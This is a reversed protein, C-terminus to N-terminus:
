FTGFVELSLVTMSQRERATADSNEGPSNKLGYLNTQTPGEIQMSFCDSSRLLQSYRTDTVQSRLKHPIAITKQKAADSRLWKKVERVSPPCSGYEWGGLRAYDFALGKTGPATEKTRSSHREDWDELIGLGVGGKLHYLLGAYERPREPADSEKSYYPDRYMKDQVSHESLSALLESVSPPAPTYVYGNANSAMSMSFQNSSRLSALESPMSSEIKQVSPISASNSASSEWRIGPDSAAIKRRKPPRSDDHCSQVMDLQGNEDGPLEEYSNVADPIRSSSTYHDSNPRLVIEGARYDHPRSIISDLDLCTFISSPVGM